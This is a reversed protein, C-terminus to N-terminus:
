ARRAAAVRSLQLTSSLDATDERDMKNTFHKALVSQLIFIAIGIWLLWHALERGRRGDEIARTLDSGAEVVRVGLPDLTSSLIGSDVVRVSSEAADVNAAVALAPKEVGASAISYVGVGVPDFGALAEGTAGSLRIDIAKGAPDSLVVSEGVERGPVALDSHEGVTLQLGGPRSTLNTVAQQLLMTYLPHLALENWSRDASSTFLLVSGAGIDRSLLLPADIEAVTLITESGAVPEARLVKEVRASQLVEGSLRGVMAALLHASKAKGIPWGLEEENDFVVPELLKAPLIEGFRQNYEEPDVNDGVFIMVGGGREAFSKLRLVTEPALDAVDTLIIVGYNKFDEQEIDAAEIKSVQVPADPGGNRPRIAKVPYYAGSRASEPGAPRAGEVCLVNVSDSITAVAFRVNDDALDDKSLQAKLRINGPKEFPVFFDVDLTEGPPIAELARPPQRNGDVFFEVSGGNSARRGTNRVQASFRAVGSKRMSGSAYSLDVIGLNEEGDIAVPVVYVSAKARIRELSAQASDSLAAWDQEQADSIIYCEKGATKFDGVLEELQEINQDLGLGYRTASKLSDLIETVQAEKYGTGRLVVEARNSMLVISVPDGENATALIKRATDIAKEFRTYDGHNMSFSADIAVVMGVRREGIASDSNLIPRLLAFAILLLALCRLFLVLYDELKVQGSRVVLARRLLEMAAWDTQKRQKRYLLHIIIPVAVGLLGLSGWLAFSNLAGM